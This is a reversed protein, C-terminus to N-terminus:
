SGHADVAGVDMLVQHDAAVLNLDVAEMGSVVSHWEESSSIPLQRSWAPPPTAAGPM